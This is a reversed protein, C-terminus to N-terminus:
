LDSTGATIVVVRGQTPEVAKAPRWFTRAVRDQQGEPFHRALSEAQADDVRTALVDQGAAILQRVVGEIWASTKGQCFIVEPYGCRKQRHLDVHAFDLNVEAPLDLRELAAAVSLGGTQVQELLERLSAPDM